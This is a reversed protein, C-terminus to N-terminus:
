QVQPIVFYFVLLLIGRCYGIKGISMRFMNKSYVCHLGPGCKGYMDENGGCLGGVGQACVQCCKCSDFVTGHICIRKLVKSKTCHIGACHPPCKILNTFNARGLTLVSLLFLFSLLSYLIGM